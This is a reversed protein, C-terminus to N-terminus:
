SKIGDSLPARRKEEEEFRVREAAWVEAEVEAEVRVREAEAVVDELKGVLARAHEELWVATDSWRAFSSEVELKLFVLLDEIEMTSKREEELAACEPEEWSGSCHESELVM